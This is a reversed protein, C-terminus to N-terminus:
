IPTRDPARTLIFASQRIAVVELGAATALDTFGQDTHWHLQWPRDLVETVGDHTSEYRLITTQLRREEDRTESVASVRQVTGDDTVHDRTVGLQDEPTPPPVFLPV